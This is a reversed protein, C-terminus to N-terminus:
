REYVYVVRRACCNGFWFINNVCILYMIPLVGVSTYTIGCILYWVYLLHAYAKWHPLANYQAWVIIIISCAYHLWRVAGCCCVITYPIGYMIHEYLAIIINPRTPALLLGVRMYLYFLSNVPGGRWWGRFFVGIWMQERALIEDITIIHLHTRNTFACVAWCNEVARCKIM